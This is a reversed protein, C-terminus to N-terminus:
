SGSDGSASSHWLDPDSDGSSTVEHSPPQSFASHGISSADHTGAVYPPEFDSHSIGSTHQIANPDPAGFESPVSPSSQHAADPSPVQFDPHPESSAHHINNAHAPAFDNSSASAHHVAGTNLSHDGVSLHHVGDIGSAKADSHAAAADHQPVGADAPTSDSAGHHGAGMEPPAFDSAGQHGAGSGHPTFDSHTTHAPQGTPTIPLNGFALNEHQNSAPHAFHEVPLYQNGGAGFVNHDGSSVIEGPHSVPTAFQPPAELHFGPIEEPTIVM